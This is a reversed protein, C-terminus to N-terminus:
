KSRLFGKYRMWEEARATWTAHPGPSPRMGFGHGGEAFVHLEANVGAKKLALYLYVANESGVRDDTAQAIFTPPCEKSIRVDPTLQGVAGGEKPVIGGPYICLAFDPRTSERDVADLEPYSRQDFNTEVDATMQGGASFGLMGIRHTDLKWEAAHARILSMSRQADQLAAQNRAMGQPSPVRYKLLCATIGLRNLWRCVDYGEHYMALHTFGGGPCILIAAGNDGSRPRFVALTPTSVANLTTGEWQDPAEATPDGPPRAPWVNIEVDAIPPAPRTGAAAPRTAPVPQVPAGGGAAFLPLSVLVVM